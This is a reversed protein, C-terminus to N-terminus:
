SEAKKSTQGQVNPTEGARSGHRHAYVQTFEAGFLVIQASYYIWLLLIVLSGAAGYVSTVSGRGLYLGIAFKGLNFLLATFIAGVWVDKWAVKTDPLFKYILAFMATIIGTTLIFELIRWVWGTGVLGSLSTSLYTLLANAILSVLILFGIALILGFSLLRLRLQQLFSMAKPKVEWIINLTQQLHAFVGTAGIFLTVVGVVTAIIGTNGRNAANLMQAILDTGEPGLLKRLENLIYTRAEGQDYILGLAALVIVLLPALAFVTFFALGAALAPINDLQWKQVTQRLLNFM